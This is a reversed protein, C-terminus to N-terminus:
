SDKLSYALLLNYVASFQAPSIKLIEAVPKQSKSLTVAEIIAQHNDLLLTYYTPLHRSKALESLIQLPM